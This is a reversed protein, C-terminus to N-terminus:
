RILEDISLRRLHRGTTVSEDWAIARNGGATKALLLAQAARDVSDEIRV